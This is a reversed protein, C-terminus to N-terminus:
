HVSVRARSGLTESRATLDDVRDLDVAVGIGPETLPVRVMGESDMTWEPTVIDREWYRASPSLDGPLTFGPLSALAINHARGIGSELMGGCWLPIENAVALDHIARSALLGGVRGPKLNIIRGSGLTIMDRARDLGTISEDLCIPTKLRRQLAAHRVLDDPALPQEIMMLELGDLRALQDADDPTYCSNADAMLQAGPGLAERVARVYEVDAGPKIKIKVKRYGEDLATRAKEVLAEPSPQIGLSIGTAVRERSGGLFKALPQDALRAALDWCAMEVAAKAMLHGRVGAALADHVDEPGDFSRGLVRPALWERIAFWATDITEPSYNPQEMAVCESWGAVGDAHHLELLCIRRESVTGSSIQFPERLPLRLERMVLSEIRPMM